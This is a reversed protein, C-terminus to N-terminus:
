SIASPGPTPLLRTIGSDTLFLINQDELHSKRYYTGNIQMNSINVLHMPRYNKRDSKQGKKFIPSVYTHKWQSPVTGTELSQKFIHTLMPSIGAATTKLVLPHISDSGPSRSPDCNTLINYVGQETIEFTPVSPHRSSICNFHTYQLM